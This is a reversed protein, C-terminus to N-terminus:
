SPLRPAARPLVEGGEEGGEEVAEQVKRSKCQSRVGMTCILLSLGLLILSECVAGRLGGWVM